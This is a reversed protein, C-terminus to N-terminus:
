LAETLGRGGYVKDYVLVSNTSLLYRKPTEMFVNDVATSIDPLAVSRNKEKERFPSTAGISPQRQLRPSPTRLYSSAGQKNEQEGEHWNRRWSKSM